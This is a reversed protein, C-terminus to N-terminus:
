GHNGVRAVAFFDDTRHTFMPDLIDEGDKDEDEEEADAYQEEKECTQTSMVRHPERVNGEEKGETEEEDCMMPEEDHEEAFRHSPDDHGIMADDAQPFAEEEFFFHEFDGELLHLGDLSLLVTEKLINEPVPRKAKLCSCLDGEDWM